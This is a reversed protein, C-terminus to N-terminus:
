ASSELALALGAFWGERGHNQLRCDPEVVLQYIRVVPAPPGHFVFGCPSKDSYLIRLNGHAIARAYATDPIFGVCKNHQNALKRCYTIATETPLENM